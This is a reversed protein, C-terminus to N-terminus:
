FPTPLAFPNDTKGSEGFPDDRNIDSGTDGSSGSSSSSGSDETPQLNTEKEFTERLKASEKKAEAAMRELDIQAFPIRAPRKSRADAAARDVANSNDAPANALGSLETSLWAQDGNERFIPDSLGDPYEVRTLLTPLAYSMNGSLENAANVTMKGKMILLDREVAGGEPLELSVSDAEHSLIAYGRSIRPPLYLRRKAPTIHDTILTQAPLGSLSINRLAIEGNFEPMANAKPLAITARAKNLPVSQTRASFFYEFRGDTFDALPMNDSDISLPSNLAQGAKIRGFITLSSRTTEESETPRNVSGSIKMEEVATQSINLKAEKLYITKWSGLQLNGGELSLVCTGDDDNRPHYLYAQAGHITLPSAEAADGMRVSFDACEVRRMSWLPSGNFKQIDLKEAEKNLQIEAHAVTMKDAILSKTFFSLSDVEAEIGTLEVRQILNSEPFEAVLSGLHFVGGDIGKGNVRIDKAGWAEKLAAVSEQLYAEGSMVSMRFGFFAALALGALFMVMIGMVLARRSRRNKEQDSVTVRRKKTVRIVKTGDERVVVERSKEKSPRDENLQNIISRVQTKEEESDRYKDDRRNM